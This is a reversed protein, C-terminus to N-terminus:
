FLLGLPLLPIAGEREREREREGLRNQALKSNYSFNPPQAVSNHLFSHSTLKFKASNFKRASQRFPSGTGALASAESGKQWDRFHEWSMRPVKVQCSERQEVRCSALSEREHVRSHLNHSGLPIPHIKVKSFKKLCTFIFLQM